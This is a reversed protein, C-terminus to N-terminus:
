QQDLCADLHANMNQLDVSDHCVPCEVQESSPSPHLPSTSQQPHVEKTFSEDVEKEEPGGELCREM